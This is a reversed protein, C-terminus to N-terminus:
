CREIFEAMNAAQKQWSFERVMRTQLAAGRRQLEPREMASIKQIQERLSRVLNEGDLYFAEPGLVEQVGSFGITLISRGSLAYAFIKSPFNNLNSQVLQRPNILVDCTQAFKLYDDPGPLAGLFRIRETKKASEALQESLRGHGCLELTANAGSAAFAEILDLVGWDEVLHGFYGFHIPGSASGGPPVARHPNCGGPMWLWPKNLAKFYEETKLSLGICADFCPLMEADTRVMPKFRYRIRRSLSLPLGLQSSDPLLLIRKLGPERARLWLFFNNYIPSLSYVFVADPAWGTKRWELFNRKLIQLSRWRHLLEPKRDLLNLENKVGPSNTPPPASPNIEIPLVGVSRIEFFESLAEIMQTEFIHGTPNVAPHLGAYGPPFAFGLYLLRRKNRHTDTNM